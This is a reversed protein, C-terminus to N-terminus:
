DLLGSQYITVVCADARIPMGHNLLEARIDDQSAHFGEALHAVIKDLQGPELAEVALFYVSLIGLDGLEAEVPILTEIPFTATGIARKWNEGCEGQLTVWFPHKESM